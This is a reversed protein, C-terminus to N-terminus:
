RHEGCIQGIREADTVSLRKSISGTAHKKFMCEWRIAKKTDDIMEGGGSIM